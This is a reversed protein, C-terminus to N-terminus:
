VNKLGQYNKYWNTLKTVILGTLFMVLTGIVVTMQTDLPNQLYEPIIRLNNSFTMWIIVLLGIVVSTIAAPRKAQRVIFGLLFLGLMAGAFIGTLQWWAALLSQVGIMALAATTGLLGCILTSLYLFRISEKNTSRPRWYRKYIDELLITASSNLSTDISSMAAAVIAAIILGAFGLPLKNAMFHPLAEDGVNEITLTSVLEEVNAVKDDEYLHPNVREVITTASRTKLDHLLDPQTQYYSFLMSGIFFFILSIPVYLTAGIWVAKKAERDSKATFYRQVYSQDFGFAKINMFLGFLLVVWFSSETFTINFTGLSFKDYENAILIASSTGGPILFLIQFLILFAGIMLVIAQAVDTWIVAEIGGMLTYFTILSGAIVIIAVMSWGTLGNLALAVGFMITAMRSLQVFLYCLVTYTRAWAGFRVEMHQYASIDKSHRYFPVFYKVAIWGAIPLALSYVFYNWDNSFARGVVGVFTNSSLYTGFLSLGIAWGPLKGDAITFDESTRDKKYFWAGFAVVAIIYVAFVVLDVVPLNM